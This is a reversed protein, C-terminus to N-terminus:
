ASGARSTMIQFQYATIEANQRATLSLGHRGGTLYLIVITREEFGEWLIFLREGHTTLRDVPHAPLVQSARPLPSPKTANSICAVPAGLSCDSPNSPQAAPSRHCSKDQLACRDFCPM